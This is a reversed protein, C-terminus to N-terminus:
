NKEKLLDRIQKLLEETTPNQEREIRAKEEAALKEAEAAAKAAEEKEALLSNIWGSAQKAAELGMNKRNDFVRVTLADKKLTRLEAM